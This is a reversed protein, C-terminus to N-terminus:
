PFLISGRNSQGGSSSCRYISRFVSTRVQKSMYTSAITRCSRNFAMDRSSRQFDEEASFRPLILCASFCCHLFLIFCGFCWYFICSVIAHVFTISFSIRPSILGWNLGWLQRNQPHKQGGLLHINECRGDLFWKKKQNSLKMIREFFEMMTKVLDRECFKMIREYFKPSWLCFKLVQECFKKM